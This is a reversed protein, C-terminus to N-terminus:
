TVTNCFNQMHQRVYERTSLSCECEAIYFPFAMASPDKRCSEGWEHGDNDCGPRISGRPKMLFGMKCKTGNMDMGIVASGMANLVKIVSRMQEIRLRGTRALSLEM